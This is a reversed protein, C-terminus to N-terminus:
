TLVSPTGHSALNGLCFGSCPSLNSLSVQTRIIAIRSKLELVQPKLNINSECVQVGYPRAGFVQPHLGKPPAYLADTYIALSDSAAAEPALPELLSAERGAKRCRRRHRRGTCQPVCCLLYLLPGGRGCQGGGVLSMASLHATCDRSAEKGGGRTENGVTALGQAFADSAASTSVTGMHSKMPDMCHVCAACPLSCILPDLLPKGPAPHLLPHRPADVRLRVGHLPVHVPHPGPEDAVAAVCDVSAADSYARAPCPSAVGIIKRLLQSTAGECMTCNLLVAVPRGRYARYARCRSRADPLCAHACNYPSSVMSDDAPRPQWAFNDGERGAAVAAEYVGRRQDAMAEFSVAGPRSGFFRSSPLSKPQAQPAAPTYVAQALPLAM